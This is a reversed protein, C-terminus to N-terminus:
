GLPRTGPRKLADVLRRTRDPSASRDSRAGHSTRWRRQERAAASPMRIERDIRDVDESRVSLHEIAQKRARYRRGGPVHTQLRSEALELMRNNSQLAEASLAQLHGYYREADSLRLLREAHVARDKEIESRLRAQASRGISWMILGGVLAGIVLCAILLLQIVM